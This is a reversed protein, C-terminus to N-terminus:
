CGIGDISGDGKLEKTRFYLPAGLSERDVLGISFSTLPEM